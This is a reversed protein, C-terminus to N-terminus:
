EIEKRFVLKEGDVLLYLISKDASISLFKMSCANSNFSFENTEEHYTYTECLDFDHYPNGAGPSYYSIEGDGSLFLRYDRNDEQLWEVEAVGEPLSNNEKPKKEECGSLMLVFVLVLLWKKM